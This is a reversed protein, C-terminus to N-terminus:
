EIDLGLSDPATPNVAATLGGNNQANLDIQSFGAGTSNNMTGNGAGTVSSASPVPINTSSAISSGNAGSM